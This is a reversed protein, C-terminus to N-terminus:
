KAGISFASIKPAINGTIKLFYNGAMLGSVDLTVLIDNPNIKQDLVKSGLLNYVEINQTITSPEELSVHLQNM